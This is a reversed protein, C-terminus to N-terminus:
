KRYGELSVSFAASIAVFTVFKFSKVAQWIGIDDFQSRMQPLHAGDPGTSEVHSVNQKKMCHECSVRQMDNHNYPMQLQDSM